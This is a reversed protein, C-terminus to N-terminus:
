LFGSNNYDNQYGTPQQTLNHPPRAAYAPDTNSYPSGHMDVLGQKPAYPITQEVLFLLDNSIKQPRQQDHTIMPAFLSDSFTPAVYRRVPEGDMAIDIVSDGALDSSMSIQFGIHNHMTITNLVDTILRRHFEELPAVLALGQVVGMTGDPHFDVVYQGQGQGNTVAFSISRIYNDMMISPIVQALTTAAITMNDSGNWHESDVATNVRRISRGDDMSYKTVHGVSPFIRELDRLTVYGREMFGAEDKLRSFFVNKHIDNNTAHSQAEGYMTEKDGGPEADDSMTSEKVAHQYASLTDSLYRSPSTDRRRSYKYTGGMGVTNRSDLVMDVGGQFQGTQSLKETVERTQGLGFIDEPRILFAAPPQYYSSFNNSPGFMDMPSVIQDASVVMPERVVGNPTSRVRDAIVTESNFYVRMDPDLHNVSADCHDTYGFLVRQTRQGGNFPHEEVVRMLFRFRRSSWGHAINVQGEPTTSPRILQSAIDEVATVGLNKGGRTATALANVTDTQIDTVFPRLSQEQYTGTQTLIFDAVDVTNNFGHM